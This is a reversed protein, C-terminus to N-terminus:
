ILRKGVWCMTGADFDSLRYTVTQGVASIILVHDGRLMDLRTDPHGKGAKIDGLMREPILVGPDAREVHLRGGINHLLCLGPGPVTVDRILGSLEVDKSGCRPM